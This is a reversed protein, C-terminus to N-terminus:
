SNDWLRTGDLPNTAANYADLYPGDPPPPSAKGMETLVDRAHELADRCYNFGTASQALAAYPPMYRYGGSM